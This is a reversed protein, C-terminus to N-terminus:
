NFYKRVIFSVTRPAFKYALMALRLKTSSFQSKSKLKFLRKAESKYKGDSSYILYFFCIIKINSLAYSVISPFKKQLFKLRIFSAEFYDSINQANKVHTVSNDHQVYYYLPIPIHCIRNAKYILRYTVFIDEYNKGIPFTVGNFLDRKFIKMPLFSANVTTMMAQEKTLLGDYSSTRKAINQHTNRLFYDFLVIDANYEYVAKIADMCFNKSVYDDSDLFMIYDGSANNIGINRVASRGKNEQDIIRIRDDINRYKQCINLSMDTSGDNVLIIEINTFTQNLLSQICMHLSKEANYVPVIVSIIPKSAQKM